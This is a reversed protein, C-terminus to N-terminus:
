ANAKLLGAMESEARSGARGAIAGVAPSGVRAGSNPGSVRVKILRKFERRLWLVFAVLMLAALTETIISANTSAAYSTIPEVRYHMVSVASMVAYVLLYNCGTVGSQAASNAQDSGPLANGNSADAAATWLINQIGITSLYIMPLSFYFTLEMETILYRQYLWKPEFYAVPRYINDAYHWTHCLISLLYCVSLSVLVLPSSARQKRWRMVMICLWHISTIVGVAITVAVMYQRLVSLPPESSVVTQDNSSVSYEIAAM